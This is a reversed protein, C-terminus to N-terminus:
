FNGADWIVVWYHLCVGADTWIGGWKAWTSLRTVGLEIKQKRTRPFGAHCTWLGQRLTLVDLMIEYVLVVDIFDINNLHTKYWLHNTLMYEVPPKCCFLVNTIKILSSKNLFSHTLCMAFYSFINAWRGPQSIWRTMFRTQKFDLVTTKM